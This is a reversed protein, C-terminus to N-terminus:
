RRSIRFLTKVYHLLVKKFGSTNNSFVMRIKLYTDRLRGSAKDRPVASRYM